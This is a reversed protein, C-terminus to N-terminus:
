MVRETKKDRSFQDKFLKLKNEGFLIIKLIKDESMRDKFEKLREPDKNKAKFWNYLKLRLSISIINPVITSTLNPLLSFYYDKSKDIDLILKTIEEKSAYTELSHIFGPLNANFYFDEM